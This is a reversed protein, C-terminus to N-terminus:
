ETLSNYPEQLHELRGYAALLAAVMTSTAFVFFPHTLGLWKHPIPPFKSSAKNQAVAILNNHRTVLIM